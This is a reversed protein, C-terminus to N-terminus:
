SRGQEVALVVSHAPLVPPEAAEVPGPHAYLTRGAIPAPLAATDPGLNAYLALREGDETPWRVAFASDGFREAEGGERMRALRPVVERRRLDLLQRVMEFRRRHDPADLKSWDLRSAAFTAEANPDAIKERNEESAFTLWKAFETRRGERVAAGLEGHFDTFFGFPHTEGWEEGMFLLPIQPSLLLVATLAELIGPEALAALRENFARNGIQDHNQLFNVFASPPLGGSPEGREEGDRFPSPQGQYIYGTALATALQGVPDDAYDGYYGDHEGTAIVHLAHHVDDNWEGSYLKVRGGPGREHLSVINREDETTLHVHRDTIRDRVARGIEELVPEDSHKAIQDVADLRLGDFRYEELWYLANEIFFDRVPKNEYAIAAGWPTIHEPHFFDPAYLQLYNGEPGFHNYVVDLFMMLGRAHAEDVLRKLGDPGGYAVHPAYLLVGDYGWGRNGGFQAVPMIEVATVGVSAIYDLRQRVGDFTGEPSFAGTHLEYLVTEEWPRGRWDATRWEYTRPDVLRSPGNVGDIQARAAPDNVAMGDALVFSYGGDPAVADTTLEFWGDGAARMPLDAGTAEVRLALREQSPAWLRFRAGGEVLEAGWSKEFHFRGSM